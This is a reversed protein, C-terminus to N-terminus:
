DSHGVISHVANSVVSPSAAPPTPPVASPQAQQAPTTTGQGAPLPSPSAALSSTSSDSSSEGGAAAAPQAPQTAAAAGQEAPMQAAPSSPSSDDSPSATGAAVAPPQDAPTAAALRAAERAAEEPSPPLSVVSMAIANVVSPNDRLKVYLQGNAPQSVPLAYGPFGDPVQVPHTFQPNDSISDLLFLGSGSLKCALEPTAPCTLNTLVPLRVLTALPQWDGSVGNLNVRFQLPGFASMGLPHASDLTALAIHSNELTLAGNTFSLVTASSGDATAVEITEDHQFAAPSQARVSFTL